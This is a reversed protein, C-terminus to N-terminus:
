ASEREIVSGSVVLLPAGNRTPEGGRPPETANHSHIAVGFDALRVEGERDVLINAAKIDRHIVGESHLYVLGKLMKSLYLSVLTAPLTGQGVDHM